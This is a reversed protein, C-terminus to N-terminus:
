WDFVQQALLSVTAIRYRQCLAQIAEQSLRM